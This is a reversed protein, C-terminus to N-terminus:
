LSRFKVHSLDSAFTPRLSRLKARAAKPSSLIQGAVIVTTQGPGPQVERLLSFEKRLRNVALRAESTSERRSYLNIAYLGTQSLRSKILRAWDNEILIPKLDSASPMWMDDIIADFIQDTSKLYSQGSNLIAEIGLSGLAFNRYALDLVVPNIEVGVIHSEPILARCQRAVTGCGLGLILISQVPQTALLLSATQADWGLGTFLREPHYVSYTGEPARLRYARGRQTVKLLVM